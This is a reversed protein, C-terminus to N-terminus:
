RSSRAQDLEYTVTDGDLIAYALRARESGEGDIHWSNGNKVLTLKSRLRWWAAVERPLAMWTEGRSRIDSLYELLQTYVGRAKSAIIYDPHVIFSILGHKERILDIQEKWLEISYKNLIHFLSYDQTTTVPLELIKGVFFPLVTCCGGKQPDLHAMNPISMDYSIDLQDFWDINRYMVASRFGSAGFQQVYQNIKAARRSFQERDAFLYGDHNLDHVNLEFGRQHFSSLFSDSVPYRKEPIIQFSSKIRFSDNLDMLEPCFNAGTSTEVDHTMMTCSPIGHPWYWIFPVKTVKRSKMSLALLREMITEVTRDVPWHPFPTRMRGRFYLRQIHKRAFVPLAPRLGYYMLHALHNVTHRKKNEGSPGALYREFRLNDLVQVPDFPLRVTTGCTHVQQYADHLAETVTRATPGSSCQGYCVADQGFRFYGQYDSPHSTFAFDLVEPPCRFHDAVLQSASATEIGQERTCMSNGHSDAEALYKSLRIARTKLSKSPENQLPM